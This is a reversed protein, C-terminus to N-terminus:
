VWGGGGLDSPTMANGEFKWNALDTSSYITIASFSVNNNKGGGPNNYYSVAGGYKVGYWYYTSGVKLVGGGQSYIPNGSTDKWFVDNKITAGVAAQPESAAAGVSTSGVPTLAVALPLLVSVITRKLM